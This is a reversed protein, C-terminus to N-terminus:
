AAPQEDNPHEDTPHRSGSDRERIAVASIVTAIGLVEVPSPIQRLTVAGVLAATAPLIALLIAFQTQDVRALVIQDLGYPVASSLLGVGAALVLLGPSMWAEASQPVGIPAFVVCGCALAFSLGDTGTASARKGWLIYGAWFVAALAIWALGTGNAELEIGAL